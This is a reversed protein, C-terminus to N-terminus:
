EDGDKPSLLWSDQRGTWPVLEPVRDLEIVPSPPAAVLDVELGDGDKQQHELRDGLLAPGRDGPHDQRRLEHVFELHRVDTALRDARDRPHSPAGPNSVILMEM